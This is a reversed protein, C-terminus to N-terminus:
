ISNIVGRAIQLKRKKVKRVEESIMNGIKTACFAKESNTKRYNSQMPNPNELKGYRPRGLIIKKFYKM